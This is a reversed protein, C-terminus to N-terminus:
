KNKSTRKVILGVTLVALIPFVSAAALIGFGEITTPINNGIGLGMAIVLPVTVPGTTVGASDWGINVFEETSMISLFILLFYPPLLIYLLPLNFIIKMIGLATGLAVGFAVAQILLKKKFAGVTIEEVKIGLANLAPEALTAGYGLFLAFIIAITKGWPDSYLPGFLQPPEGTAIQLFAAPVNSGVQNGLPALGLTLGLNFLVMGVVSFIIGLIIEDGKNIRERLIFRQVIFLLLCLPLIAQVSVIIAKVPLSNWLTPFSDTGAKITQTIAELEAPPMSYHLYFGLGLVAIIPFLSALTVIGFGSMGIDSKGTARCVGIGLSLVLPVTVPGTTVAGADWALGIINTMGISQAWLSMGALIVVLPIILIKLSLDLLFRMIGLVTAIGVGIGVSLVLLGNYRNLIAYLLPADRAEINIGASRLMGIAPEALTAGIGVLFAFGIIIFLPSKQPLMAGITESFPMLGLQLGELFFLLGLIVCTQGLLIITADAVPKQLVLLQFLFLYGVIPLVIKLQGVLRERFYPWIIRVAQTFTVKLANEM